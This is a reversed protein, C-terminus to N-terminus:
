KDKGHAGQAQADQAEQAFNMHRGIGQMDPWGISGPNDKELGVSVGDIRAPDGGGDPPCKPMVVGPPTPLTSGGM